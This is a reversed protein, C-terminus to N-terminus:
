PAVAEQIREVARLARLAESRGVPIPTRGEMADVFADWQAQLGDRKDSRPLHGRATAAVGRQLDLTAYAGRGFLRVRREVRRAIRSAELQAVQGEPTELRVRVWDCRGATGQAWCSAVQVADLDMWLSLLDLDHIMLDQIVDIDMSRATAPAVRVTEVRSPTLKPLCRVAPNFREVHGVGLRGTEEWSCDEGRPVLPKEVLCWRGARLHPEVVAAHTVTPTAVVLAEVGEPAVSCAEAGYRSAVRRAREHDLDVAAVLRCEPHAAIVRAHHAGM